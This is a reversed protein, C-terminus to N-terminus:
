QILCSEGQCYADFGLMGRWLQAVENVDTLRNGGWERSFGEPTPEFFTVYFDKWTEDFTPKGGEVLKDSLAFGHQYFILILDYVICGTDVCPQAM